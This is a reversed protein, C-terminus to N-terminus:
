WNHDTMLEPRLSSFTDPPTSSLTSWRDHHQSHTSLSNCTTPPPKSSVSTFSVAGGARTRWGEGDCRSSGERWGEAPSHWVTFHSRSQPVASRPLAESIQYTDLRRVIILSAAKKQKVWSLVSGWCLHVMSVVMFWINLSTLVQKSM